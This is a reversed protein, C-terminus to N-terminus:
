WDSGLAMGDAPNQAYTWTALSINSSVVRVSGDAMGINMAGPHASQAFFPNAAVPRIGIQPLGQSYYSFM